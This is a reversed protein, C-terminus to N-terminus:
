TALFSELRRQVLKATREWTWTKAIEAASRATLDMVDEYETDVQRLRAVLDDHSPEQWYGYPVQAATDREVGQLAATRTTPVSLGLDAYEKMGTSDAFIASLGTAMAELPISGFSEAQSTFLLADFGQYFATLNDTTLPGNARQIRSDGGKDVDNPAYTSRLTLSVDARQPFAVRFAKVALDAGKRPDSNRTAFHLFKLTEGRERRKYSFAAADVGFPIIRKPRPVFRFTDAVYRSPCWLEDFSELWRKWSVPVADSAHSLFCASKIGRLSSHGVPPGNWVIFDGIPTGSRLDYTAEDNTFGAISPNGLLHSATGISALAKILSESSNGHSDAVGWSPTHFDVLTVTTEQEVKSSRAM